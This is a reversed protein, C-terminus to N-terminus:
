LKNDVLYKLLGDACSNISSAREILSVIQKKIEKPDKSIYYGGSTAIIPAIGKTRIYNVLKRIKRGNVKPRDDDNYVNLLVVLKPTLFKTEKNTKSLIDILPDVNKLDEISIDKTHLEFNTVM